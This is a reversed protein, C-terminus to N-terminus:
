ALGNRGLRRRRRLVLAGALLALLVIAPLLADGGVAGGVELGGLRV